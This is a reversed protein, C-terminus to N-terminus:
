LLPSVKINEKIRKIWQKGKETLENTFRNHMSEHCKNCLSLLNINLLKYEPYDELPYIHHVTNAQTTRGYRKCERCLFEDRRLIVARKRIWQKTKYFPNNTRM